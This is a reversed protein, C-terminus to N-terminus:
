INAFNKLLAVGNHHSKEPHCQVGYINEHKVICSYEIGYNAKALSNQSNSCEFYYSHLFYFRPDQDLGVFILDSKEIIINNWGMHPLPCAEALAADPYLFRKVEGSIWGLGDLSGEESCNAMIQMGVCIGLVPIKEVLVLNNLTDRLGSQNLMNMAHDFAGVGPLIIKTATELQEKNKAVVHAINLRKYVNTFAKINGLGYDIIAIM